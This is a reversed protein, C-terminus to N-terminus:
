IFDAHEFCQGCLSENGTWPDSGCCNSLIEEDQDCDPENTLDFAEQLTNILDKIQARSLTTYTIGHQTVGNQITIQLKTGASGGSFRTLGMTAVTTFPTTSTAPMVSAYKKLETAM